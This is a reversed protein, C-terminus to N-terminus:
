WLWRRSTERAGDALTQLRAVEALAVQLKREGQTKVDDFHRQQEAAAVVAERHDLLKRAHCVVWTLGSSAAALVLLPLIKMERAEFLEAQLKREEDAQSKQSSRLAAELRQTERVYHALQAELIESEERPAQPPSSPPQTLASDLAAQLACIEKHASIERSM